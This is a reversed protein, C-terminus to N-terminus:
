ISSYVRTCKVAKYEKGANVVKAIIKTKIETILSTTELKLNPV